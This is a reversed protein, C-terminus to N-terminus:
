IVDWGTPLSPLEWDPEPQWAAWRGDLPWARAEIIEIARRGEQRIRTAEETTFRGLTRAEEFEAEDKWKWTMDPSVVLDLVHDATDFGVPTRRLADQLNVYWGRFSWDAARWFAWFSFAMGPRTIMLVSNDTWEGDGLQWDVTFRETYSLTRDIPRATAPDIPKKIITGAALFLAICAPSDEVVRVPKAWRLRDM